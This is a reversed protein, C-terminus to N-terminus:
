GRREARRFSSQVEMVLYGITVVLGQADIVVGSGARSTGLSAATRVSEPVEARIGVVASFVEELAEQAYVASSDILALLIAVVGVRLGRLSDRAKSESNM